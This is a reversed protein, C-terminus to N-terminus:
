SYSDKAPEFCGTHSFPSSANPSSNNERIQRISNLCRSTIRCWSALMIARGL